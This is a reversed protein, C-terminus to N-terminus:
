RWGVKKMKKKETETPSKEEEEGMIVTQFADLETM